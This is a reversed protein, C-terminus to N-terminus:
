VKRLLRAAIIWMVYKLHGLAEAGVRMKSRGFHRSTLQAPVEAVRYGKLIASVLLQTVGLFGDNRADLKNTVGHRYARFCSTYTYLRVPLVIWYIYSLTKSLFLRWRIVNVIKGQPHYPSGTVVDHGRRLVDLLDPIHTPDYTCDSDLTVIEEGRSEAFGTRLAASLGRNREHTVIRFPLGSAEKRILDATGDLSGDDVFLIEVGDGGAILPVTERLRSCLHVIGEVENYCPILITTTVPM